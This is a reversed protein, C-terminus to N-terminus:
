TSPSRRSARATATCSGAFRAAGYMWIPPNAGLVLEARGSCTSPPATGGLEDPLGLRWWEADM